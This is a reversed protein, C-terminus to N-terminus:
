FADKRRRLEAFVAVAAAGAMGLSRAIDARGARLFPNTRSELAITAPVTPKGEGRLREVERMRQQLDANGPEVTLAFRGNNLTYEHGCFVRTEEPLVALKSLSQWMLAPTGEFLRGCGMLFLTDGTFVARAGGFHFAIHGMTHGPIEIVRAEHAGLKFVDGERLGHALAPIRARDKEAGWVEAGLDILTRNGGVHDQHHHTNVIHTLTFQHKALARKVPEAESPDVVACQRSEPDFVLYAYNDKLCPVPHIQLEAM